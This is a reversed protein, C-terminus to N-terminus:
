RPPPSATEIRRILEDTTPTGTLANHADDITRKMEIIGMGADQGRQEQRAHIARVPHFIRDAGDRIALTARMVVRGPGTEGAAVVLRHIPRPTLRKIANWANQVGTSQSLMVQLVVYLAVFRATRRTVPALRPRVHIRLFPVIRERVVPPARDIVRDLLTPARPPM